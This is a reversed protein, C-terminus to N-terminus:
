LATNQATPSARLRAAYNPGLPDSGVKFLVFWFSAVAVSQSRKPRLIGRSAPVRKCYEAGSTLPNALALQPETLPKVQVPRLTRLEVQVANRGFQVESDM